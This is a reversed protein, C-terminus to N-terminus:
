RQQTGFRFLTCILFTGKGRKTHWVDSLQRLLREPLSAFHGLCPPPAKKLVAPRMTFFQCAPLSVNTELSLM